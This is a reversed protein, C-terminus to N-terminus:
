MQQVAFKVRVEIVREMKRNIGVEILHTPSHNSSHTHVPINPAIYRHTSVSIYPCKHSHTCVCARKFIYIYLTYSQSSAVYM